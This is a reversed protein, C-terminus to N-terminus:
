PDCSIDGGVRSQLRRLISLVVADENYHRGSIDAQVEGEAALHFYAVPDSKPSLLLWPRTQGPLLDSLAREVEAIKTAHSLFYSKM